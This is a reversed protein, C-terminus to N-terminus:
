LPQMMELIIGDPDRFYFARSEGFGDARFDFYQPESLCEVHNEILAKYVSDIDDTYFCVESISTTFLDSQEKHIKSDVFQILEVPPTEINESGNLYAVRAKCNKKQFMKDTEEGAWKRMHPKFLEEESLSDIMAYISNINDNLMDKLEQLSLYAYTDTFWQYLEGLQNWKFDDSPTKVHLGKREDAEWKLVLTTWGVQYALNEAPTRDVEDVRKDKLSEPILMLHYRM